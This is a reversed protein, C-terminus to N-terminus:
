CFNEIPSIKAKVPTLAKFFLSTSFRVVVAIKQNIKAIVKM